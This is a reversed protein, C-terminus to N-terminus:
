RIPSLRAAGASKVSTTSRRRRCARTRAERVPRPRRGAAPASRAPWRSARRGGVDAQADGGHARETLDASRAPTVVSSAASRRLRRRRAVEVELGDRREAGDAIRLGELRQEIPEGIRPRRHARRRKGGRGPRIGVPKRKTTELKSRPCPSTPARRARPCARSGAARARACARDLVQGDVAVRPDAARRELREHVIPAGSRLLRRNSASSAGSKVTRAVAARSTPSVCGAPPAARSARRRRGPLCRRTTQPAHPRARPARATHGRGFGSREEVLRQGVALPRDPEPGGLQQTSQALGLGSGARGAGSRSGASNKSDAAMSWGVNEGCAKMSVRSRCSRLDLEVDDFRRERRPVNMSSARAPKKLPTSPGGAPASSRPAPPRDARRRRLAARAVRDPVLQARQRITRPVSPIASVPGSVPPLWNKMVTDGCGCRSPLYVTNPRTTCPISIARGSRATPRRDLAHPDPVAHRQSSIFFPPSRRGRERLVPRAPKGSRAARRRGARPQKRQWQTNDRGEGQRQAGARMQLAADRGKPEGSGRAAGDSEHCVARRAIQSLM